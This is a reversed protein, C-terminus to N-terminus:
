YRAGERLERMVSPSPPMTALHKRAQAMWAEKDFPKRSSKSTLTFSKDANRAVHLSSGEDLGLERVLAVPLRVALSNGWRSVNLDLESLGGRENVGM